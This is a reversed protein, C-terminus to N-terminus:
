HRHWRKKKLKTEQSWQNIFSIIQIIDIMLLITNIILINIEWLFM